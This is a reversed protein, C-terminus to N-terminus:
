IPLINWEEPPLSTLKRHAPFVENNFGTKGEIKNEPKLGGHSYAKKREIVEKQNEEIISNFKKLAEEAAKIITQSGGPSKINNEAQLQADSKIKNIIKQEMWKSCVRRCYNMTVYYM